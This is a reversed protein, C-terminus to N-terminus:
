QRVSVSARAMSWVIRSRATNGSASSRVARWLRRSVSVRCESVCSMCRRPRPQDGRCLLPEAGRLEYRRYRAGSPCTKEECSAGRSAGSHQETLEAVECIVLVEGDTSHTHIAARGVSVLSRLVLMSVSAPQVPSGESRIRLNALSASRGRPTQAACMGARFCCGSRPSCIRYGSRASGDRYTCSETALQILSAAFVRGSQAISSHSRHAVSLSLAAVVRM